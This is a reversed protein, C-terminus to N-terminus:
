IIFEIEKIECEFSLGDETKLLLHGYEGLGTIRARIIKGDKWFSSVLNKRYLKDFYLKDIDRFSQSKLINYYEGINSILQELLLDLNYEKGTVMCLSGPNPAGSRFIRQNVNLGIGAISSDLTEGLISNQILIGAVKSDDIYIDNPWKITVNGKSILESVTKQVGLAVVKSLMFQSGANLFRPYLVMSMTLNMGPESEWTNIDLGRGHTQDRTIIVTGEDMEGEAILKAAQINTSDLSGFRLIIHKHMRSKM